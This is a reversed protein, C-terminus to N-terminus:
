HFEARQRMGDFVQDAEARWWWSRLGLSQQQM